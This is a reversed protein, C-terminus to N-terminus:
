SKSCWINLIHDYILKLDLKYKKVDVKKNRDIAFPKAMNLYRKTINVGDIVKVQEFTRPKTFDITVAHDDKMFETTELFERANFIQVLKKGITQYKVLTKPILGIVDQKNKLVYNEGDFFFVDQKYKLDLKNQEILLECYPMDFVIDHAQKQNEM